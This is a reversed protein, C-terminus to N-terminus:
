RGYWDKIANIIEVWIAIATWLVLVLFASGLPLGVLVIPVWAWWPM